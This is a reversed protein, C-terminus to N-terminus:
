FSAGATTATEVIKNESRRISKTMIEPLLIMTKEVYKM